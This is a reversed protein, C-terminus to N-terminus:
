IGFLLRVAQEILRTPSPLKAGAALALAAAFSVLGLACSVYFDKIYGNKYTQVQDLLVIFAFAFITFLIM